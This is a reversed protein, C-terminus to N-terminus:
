AVMQRVRKGKLVQILAGRGKGKEGTKRKEREGGRRKTKIVRAV